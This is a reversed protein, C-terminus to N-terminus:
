DIWAGGSFGTYSAKHHVKTSVRTATRNLVVHYTSQPSAARDVKIVDYGQSAAYRGANSYVERLLKLDSERRQLGAYSPDSSPVTYLQNRVKYIESTVRAEAQGAENNLDSYKGIKAGKKISLRMVAGQGYNNSYSGAVEKAGNPNGKKAGAVYTGNGYIGYGPYYKGQMYAQDFGQGDSVGRYAELEKGTTVYKDMESPSVVDPKGDFGHHAFLAGLLADGGASRTAFQKPNAAYADGFKALIDDDSMPSGQTIKNAIAPSVKPPKPPKVPKPPPVDPGHSLPNGHADYQLVGPKGGIRIQRRTGAIMHFRNGHTRQDHRGPLHKIQECLAKLEQELLFM